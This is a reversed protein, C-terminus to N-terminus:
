YKISIIINVIMFTGIIEALFLHGQIGESNCKDLTNEVANNPCLLAIGPWSKAKEHDSYNILTISYSGLAAGALQAAILWLAYVMNKKLHPRGDRILVGLTVAPNFHGGSVKGFMTICFFYMLGVAIPQFGPGLHIGANLSIVIFATGILEYLCVWSKNEYGGNVDM